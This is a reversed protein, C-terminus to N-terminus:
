TLRSRPVACLHVTLTVGGGPRIVGSPSTGGMSYSAPNAGSDTRISYLFVFYLYFYSTNRVHKYEQKM